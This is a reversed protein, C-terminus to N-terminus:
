RPAAAGSLRQELEEITWSAAELDAVLRANQATLADNGGPSPQETRGRAALERVLEKGISESERLDAELGLIRAGREKLAEELRQVEGEDSPPAVGALKGIQADREALRAELAAREADRKGLDARQADREATVAALQKSLRERDATLSAALKNLRENEGSLARVDAELSASREKASDAAIPIRARLEAAEAELAGVREILAAESARAARLDAAVREDTRGGLVGASPLQVIGFADLQVPERSAAAVFWEPEEAGGPVLESDISVEPEGEPAFDVVAYGV